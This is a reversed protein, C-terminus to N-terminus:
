AAQSAEGRWGGALVYVDFDQESLLYAAAQSRRGTDCYVVLSRERPLKRAKLRLLYLPVNVAGPVHGQNFEGELRVDVWLAGGSAVLDSAEAFEVEQLLPAKLLEEFHAKSLRMLEGDSLMRVSANRTGASMLAEEGFADGVGREALKVTRGGEAQRLVEASGSKIIYFYDGEEGQEVVYQGARVRVPEMRTFIAQINAPPVRFFISSRLMRTMWDGGGDDVDDPSIEEVVYGASQDWTLLIDLLENDVRVVTAETETVATAQRPQQNALPARADASGGSIIRSQGGADSLRVQGSLVYLAKEDQLGPRFLIRGAPVRELRVQAALKDLSEESLSELPILTRLQDKSVTSM